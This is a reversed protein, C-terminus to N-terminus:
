KPKTVDCMFNISGIRLLAMDLLSFWTLKKNKTKNKNKNKNEYIDFDFDFM